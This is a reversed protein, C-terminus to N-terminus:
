PFFLLAIPTDRRNKKEMDAALIEPKKIDNQNYLIPITNMSTIVYRCRRENICVKLDELTDFTKIRHRKLYFIFASNVANYIAINDDNVNKLVASVRNAFPVLTRKSEFVAMGATYTWLELSFFILALWIFGKFCEKKLFLLITLSLASATSVGLLIFVPNKPLSNKYYTYVFIVGAVSLMISTLIFAGFLPDKKSYVRDDLWKKVGAGTIISLAPIIPLIYYSRRSGSFTFFIFISLAILLIWRKQKTGIWSKVKFLSALFIFVWPVIYLPIYKFYIYFPEIHDFPSFFRLVNERWMLRVSEWSGTFVVPMLLLMFFVAIGAAIGKLAGPSFLWQGEKFFSLLFNKLSIGKTRISLFSEFLNTFLLSFLVLSPAVPGKCFASIALIIYFLVAHTTKNPIDLHLYLFLAFWVMFLNLMEASATKSWFIFMFSTALIVTSILSAKKGFLYKGILYIIFISLIGFLASPLRLSFEGVEDWIFAFPIIAWYSLLPKDFYVKGNITPLFYDGTLIMERVIAAWRGEPGWLSRISLGSFYLIATAIFIVFFLIKEEGM